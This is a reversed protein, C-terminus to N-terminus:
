SCCTPVRLCCPILLVVFTRFAICNASCRRKPWQENICHPRTQVTAHFLPAIVAVYLSSQEKHAACSRPPSIAHSRGQIHWPSKISGSGCPLVLRPPMAGGNSRTNAFYSCPCHVSLLQLLNLSKDDIAPVTVHQEPTCSPMPLTPHTDQGHRDMPTSYPLPPDAYEIRQINNQCSCLTTMTFSINFQKTTLSSGKVQSPLM